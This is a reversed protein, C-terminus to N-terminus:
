VRATAAGIIATQKARKVFVWTRTFSFSIAFTFVTTMLLAVLDYIHFVSTFVSM